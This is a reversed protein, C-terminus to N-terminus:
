SYLIPNKNGLPRFPEALCRERIQSNDVATGCAMYEDDDGDGGSGCRRKKIAASKAVQISFIKIIQH